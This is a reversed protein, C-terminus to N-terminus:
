RTWQVPHEVAYRFLEDYLLMQIDLIQEHTLEPYPPTKVGVCCEHVFAVAGCAHHLASCLNFSPPPFRLGDERAPPGGGLRHPLRADAYRKQVRDGLRKIAEKVTHPVYATPELSPASAHSHLSVIFDPAEDRALQFYARTEAALPAFWEDHMLNVGDDNFYAGLSRYVGPRMPHVRKVGPWTYNSGDPKVGMGVSENTSLEEGVWSDIPCRARGDPNGCPVVLVRCRDLNERLQEWKRGGLDAGTEALHLLNVLGVMGEFEGGHVPGLLFVVPRQKGDKYAYSAPDNGGCASNYNARGRREQKPGYSVLHLDRKGPSRALVRVTGKKVQRVAQDVDSLRSTWFPPLKRRDAGVAAAATLAAGGLAALADRRHM